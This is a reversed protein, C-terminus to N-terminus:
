EAESPDERWVSSIQPNAATQAFSLRTVRSLRQLGREGKIEGESVGGGFQWPFSVNDWRPTPNSM